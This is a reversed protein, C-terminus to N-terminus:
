ISFIRLEANLPTYDKLFVEQSKVDGVTMVIPLSANKRAIRLIDKGKHTFGLVRIYPPDSLTIDNTIGFVFKSRRASYAFSYLAKNQLIM